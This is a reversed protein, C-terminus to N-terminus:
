SHSVYKQYQTTILFDHGPTSFTKNDDEFLIFEEEFASFLKYGMEELRDLQRRALYRYSFTIPLLFKLCNGTNMTIHYIQDPSM